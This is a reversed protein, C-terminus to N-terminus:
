KFVKTNMTTTTGSVFVDGRIVVNIPLGTINDGVWVADPDLEERFQIINAGDSERTIDLDYATLSGAVIAQVTDSTKANTDVENAIDDLADQIVSGTLWTISPGTLNSLDYSIQGAAVKRNIFKPHRFGKIIM